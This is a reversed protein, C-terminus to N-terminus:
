HFQAPIGGNEMSDNVYMILDNIKKEIKVINEPLLIGQVISKQSKGPLTHENQKELKEYQICMIYEKYLGELAKKIETILKPRGSDHEEDLSCRSHTVSTRRSELISNLRKIEKVGAERKEKLINFQKKLDNM